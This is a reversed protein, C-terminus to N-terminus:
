PSRPGRGGERCDGSHSAIEVVPGEIEKVVVERVLEIM